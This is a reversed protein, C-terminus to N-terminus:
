SFDVHLITSFEPTEIEPFLQYETFKKKDKTREFSKIQVNHPRLIQRLITLSSEATSEHLFLKAKCPFYYPELVPLYAELSLFDLSEKFFTRRDTIGTFGLAILIEEVLLKPPIKRFM